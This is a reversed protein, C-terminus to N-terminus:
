LPTLLRDSLGSRFHSVSRDPQPGAVRAFGHRARGALALTVGLWWRASVASACAGLALLQGGNRAPGARPRRVQKRKSTPM